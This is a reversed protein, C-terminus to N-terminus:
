LAVGLRKPPAFSHLTTQPASRWSYLCLYSAIGLLASGNAVHATRIISGMLSQAMVTNHAAFRFDGMWDPWSYKAVWAGVGLLIQLCVLGLLLTRSRDFEGVALEFYTKGAVFVVAMALLLHFYVVARFAEPSTDVTIHRLHAGVVLQFYTAVLLMTTWIVGNQNSSTWQWQQWRRSTVTAFVVAAAFFAPGLCGHIRALLRKDFEVRAGGLLGQGVVLVLLLVAFWRVWPRTELRWAAFLVAITVMGVVSAFLRHGHEVFLDWPGFVWKQWPYLFLNYGYTTPWDVVAM